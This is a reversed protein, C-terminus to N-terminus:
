ALGTFPGNCLAMVSLLEAIMSNRRFRRLSVHSEAAIRERIWDEHPELIRRRHGGMKGIAVDGTKSLKDAWRVATARCILFTEATRGSDHKLCFRAARRRLDLSYYKSM